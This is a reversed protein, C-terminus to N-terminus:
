KDIKVDVRRHRRHVCSAGASGVRVQLRHLRRTRPPHQDGGSVQELPACQAQPSRSPTESTRRRGRFSAAPTTARRAGSATSSTTGPAPARVGADLQDGRRCCLNRIMADEQIEARPPGFGVEATYLNGKSDIAINHVWKFQGPQRGHRGWQTLVEGTERDLTVIQGNAGDAMFIFSRAARGRVARPGVGLREGADGAHRPIGERLHRGQPVGPHPQQRPRLCLRPRREVAARLAGSQRVAGLAQRRAQLGANKRREAAQRLRGVHAQLRRDQCDFVISATTATATPSTSRTRTM